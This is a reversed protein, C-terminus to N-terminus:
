KVRELISLFMTPAKSLDFEKQEKKLWAMVMNEFSETTECDGREVLENFMLYAVVLSLSKITENRAQEVKKAKEIEANHKEQLDQRNKKATKELEKVQKTELTQIDFVNVVKGIDNTEIAVVKREM